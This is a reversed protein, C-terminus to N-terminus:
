YLSNDASKVEYGETQTPVIPYYIPLGFIMTLEFVGLSLLHLCIGMLTSMFYLVQYCCENEHKAKPPIQFISAFAMYFNNPFPPMM